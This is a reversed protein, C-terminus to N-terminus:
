TVPSTAVHILVLLASLAIAMHGYLTSLKVKISITAKPAKPTSANIPSTTGSSSQMTTLDGPQNAMNAVPSSASAETLTNASANLSTRSTSRTSHGMRPCTSTMTPARSFATSPHMKSEHILRTQWEAARDLRCGICGGCPIELRTGDIGLNESFVLSRKGSPNMQKSRWVPVPKYCPM